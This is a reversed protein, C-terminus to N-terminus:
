QVTNLGEKLWPHWKRQAYSPMDEESKLILQNDEESEIKWNNGYVQLLSCWSCFHTSCCAILLSRKGQMKGKINCMPQRSEKTSTTWNSASLTCFSSFGYIYKWVFIFQLDAVKFYFLSSSRTTWICVCCYRDGELNPIEKLKPYTVILLM